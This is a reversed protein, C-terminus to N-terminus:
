DSTAKGMARLLTTTQREITATFEERTLYKGLVLERVAGIQAQQSTDADRLSKIDDRVNKMAMLIWGNIATVLIGGVSVVISIITAFDM